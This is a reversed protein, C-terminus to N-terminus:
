HMTRHVLKGVSKITQKHEMNYESEVFNEWVILNNNKIDPM